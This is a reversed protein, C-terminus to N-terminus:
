RSENEELEINALEYLWDRIENIQEDTLEEGKEGLLVRCENTNIL